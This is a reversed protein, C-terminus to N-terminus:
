SRKETSSASLIECTEGDLQDTGRANCGRSERSCKTQLQSALQLESFPLQANGPLGQALMAARQGRYSQASQATTGLHGLRGTSQGASASEEVLREFCRKSLPLRQPDDHPPGLLLQKAPVKLLLRKTPKKRTLLM